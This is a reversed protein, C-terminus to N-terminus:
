PILVATQNVVRDIARAEYHPERVIVDIRQEGIAAQLEERFELEHALTAQEATEAEIHLDIDGGRLRDDTRSGFLRVIAGQGFHKRACAKIAEIEKQTLRM